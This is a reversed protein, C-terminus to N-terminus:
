GTLERFAPLCGRADTGGPSYKVAATAQHCRESGGMEHLATM